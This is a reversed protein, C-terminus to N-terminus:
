IDEHYLKQPDTIILWGKDWRLIGSKELKKLLKSVYTANSSILAGIEEQTIPLQLRIEKQSTDLNLMSVLQWLFWELRQETKVSGLRAATETLEYHDCSLAQQIRWAFDIDGKTVSLFERAPTSHLECTTLTMASASSQRGLIASAVGLFSGPHRLGVIIEQGNPNLHVLKILGKELFYVTEPLEGQNFLVAKAPYVQLATEGYYTDRMEEASLARGVKIRDKMLEKVPEM